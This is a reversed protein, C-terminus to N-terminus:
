KVALGDTSAIVVPVEDGLGSPPQRVVLDDPKLGSMIGVKIGNDESYRVPTRVAKGDRVTYVSARGAEFKGVLCSSPVSLLNSKELIITVRGFMGNRIKGTPNPLDIEIHMLRTDADESQSVRSVKAPLTKEDPLADIEVIAPDGVDCYPVDRDPIQVVVRMLDTRQATLLPPHAGGENAARVYDRVFFNRQTVVGDFPATV